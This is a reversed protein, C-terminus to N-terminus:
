RKTKIQRPETQLCSGLSMNRTTSPEALTWLFLKMLIRCNIRVKILATSTRSSIVWKPRSCNLVLSFVLISNVRSSDCSGLTRESFTSFRFYWLPVSVLVPKANPITSFFTLERKDVNQSFNHAKIVGNYAMAYAM